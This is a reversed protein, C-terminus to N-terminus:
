GGRAKRKERRLTFAVKIVWIAVLMAAVGWLIRQQFPDPTKYLTAWLVFALPPVPVLSDMILYVILRIHRVRPSVDFEHKDM